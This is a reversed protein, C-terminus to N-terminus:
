TVTYDFRAPPEGRRAAEDAFVIEVREGQSLRRRLPLELTRRGIEAYVAVGRAQALPPEGSGAARVTLDGYLSAKGTRVLALALAAQRGSAPPMYRVDRIEAGARPDGQRVIVPISVGFATRIRITMQGPRAQAAQEATLGADPPPVATVTLHSRYEGEPLDAARAIRLRVTQSEGPRLTVRRPSFVIMETATQLLATAEAGGPEDAVDGPERIRGDPLMVRDALEIAYTTTETGRNLLFVTASRAGAALVLRKPSITLDEGGQGAASGPLVATAFGGLVLVQVARRRSQM